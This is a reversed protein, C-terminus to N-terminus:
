EVLIYKKREGNETMSLWVENPFVADPITETTYDLYVTAMWGTITAGFKDITTLKMWYFSGALVIDGSGSFPTNPLVDGIDLGNPTERINAFPTATSKVKGTYSNM